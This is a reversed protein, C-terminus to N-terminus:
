AAAAPPGSNGAQVTTDTVEGAGALRAKPARANLMSSEIREMAFTFCALLLPILVVLLATM